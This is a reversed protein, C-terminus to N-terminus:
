SLSKFVIIKIKVLNKTYKIIIIHLGRLKQTTKILQAFFGVNKAVDLNMNTAGNFSFSDNHVLLKHPLKPAKM